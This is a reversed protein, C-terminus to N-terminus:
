EKGGGIPFTRRMQEKNSYIVLKDPLIDVVKFKGDVVMDKTVTMAKTEFEIMALRDGDNGCIGQVRLAIPKVPPPPPPGKPASVARPAQPIVPMAIKKEVLPKFPDKAEKELKFKSAQLIQEIQESEDLAPNAAATSGAEAGAVPAEGGGGGGGAPAEAAVPGPAEAPNAPTTDGGGAPAAASSAGGADAPLAFPDAGGSADQAMLREVGSGFSLAGMACWLVFWIKRSGRVTKKM